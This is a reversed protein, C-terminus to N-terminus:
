PLHEHKTVQSIWKKKEDPKYEKVFVSKKAGFDACKSKPSM